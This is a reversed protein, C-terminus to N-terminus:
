EEIVNEKILTSNADLSYNTANGRLTSNKLTLTMPTPSTMKLAIDNTYDLLLNNLEWQDCNSVNILNTDKIVLDIHCNELKGSNRDILMVAPKKTSPLKSYRGAGQLYNNGKWTVGNSYGYFAIGCNIVTADEIEIDLASSNSLIGFRGCTVVYPRIYKVREIFNYNSIGDEYESNRFKCDIVEGDLNKATNDGFFLLNKDISDHYDIKKFVFNKSSFCWHNTVLANCIEGYSVEFYQCDKTLLSTGGKFSSWVYQSVQSGMDRANPEAYMQNSKNGDIVGLNILKFNSCGEFALTSQIHGIKANRSTLYDFAFNYNFSIVNETIDTIMLPQAERRTKGNGGGEIARNDDTLGVVQGVKFYNSANTISTSNEGIFADAELPLEVGDCIKIESKNVITKNSVGNLVKYFRYIEDTSDGIIVVRYNSNFTNTIETHNDDNEANAGFAKINANPNNLCIYGLHDVIM